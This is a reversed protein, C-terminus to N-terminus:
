ADAANDREKLEPDQTADTNLDPAPWGPHVTTMMEEHTVDAVSLLEEQIGKVGPGCLRHCRVDALASYAAHVLRIFQEREADMPFDELKASYDRADERETEDMRRWLQDAQSRISEAEPSDDLGRLQLRHLSLTLFNYLEVRAPTGLQSFEVFVEVPELGPDYTVTGVIKRMPPLPEPPAPSPDEVIEAKLHMYRTPDNM